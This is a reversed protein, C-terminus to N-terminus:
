INTKRFFEGTFAGLELYRRYRLETLEARSTDPFYTRSAKPALNDIANEVSPFIGAVVSAHIVSGLACSHICGSIELKRELVDALMQMVAPSKQAIGGVGTLSDIRVGGATMHDIVARTAFVTAEVLSRFIEPASTSLGLGTVAARVNDDPHPSRRGNFYDTAAPSTETIELGFADETLKLLINDAIYDTIRKTEEDSLGAGPLLETVPWSLLRKFWAYVDGFASLGAEFGVMGPLISDDVQGFIGDILRGNMEDFPMVAMYGSSTGINLVMKGYRIGAGVAGSHSDVNGVGVLVTEPLGLKEAWKGCLTGAAKDCGYHEEPMNRLFPLLRPDLRSFFEAPPFGGWKSAWLHKAGAVCRGSKLAAPKECGTLLAPIWDCLEVAAAAREAVKESTRVIHLVKSWFCEASYHNGTYCLYNEPFAANLASIEGAEVSATHDKWLIFMADPEDEFEPYMALPVCREDTFCPTSATTDASIARIRDPYPCKSVVESLVTEMSEVYDAPHHRFRSAKPDCYKGKGWRSYCSVAAAIEEGSLPDVLLARVSDSGFDLGIVYNHQM